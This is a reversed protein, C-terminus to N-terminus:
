RAAQRSPIHQLFLDAWRDLLEPPGDHAMDDLVELHAAPLAQAIEKAYSLPIVRDLAGHIVLAPLHLLRLRPLMDPAAVGVAFHRATAGAHIGREFAARAEAAIRAEDLYAPSGMMAAARLQREVHGEIDSPTEAEIRALGDRTVTDALSRGFAIVLTLSIVRELQSLAMAQAVASGLSRGFLHASPAGAADLVAFADDALDALGYALPPPTGARVADFVEVLRSPREVLATSRGTDRADFRIVRFGARALRACFGDSFDGGQRGAGSILLIAEATPEGFSEYHLRFDGNEAFSM